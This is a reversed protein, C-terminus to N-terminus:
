STSAQMDVYSVHMSAHMSNVAASDAVQMSCRMYPKVRSRGRFDYGLGEMTSLTAKCEDWSWEPYSRRDELLKGGPADVGGLGGAADVGQLGGLRSVGPASRSGSGVTAGSAVASGLLSSSAACAVPDSGQAASVSRGCCAVWVVSLKRAAPARASGAASGVGIRAPRLRHPGLRDVGAPDLPDGDARDAAPDPDDALGRHGGQGGVARVHQAAVARHELHGAVALEPGGEVPEADQAARRAVQVVDAGEAQALLQQQPDVGLM